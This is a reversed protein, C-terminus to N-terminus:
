HVKLFSDDLARRRQRAGRIGQIQYRTAIDVECLWSGDEKPTM